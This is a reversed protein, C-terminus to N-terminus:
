KGARRLEFSDEDGLVGIEQELRLAQLLLIRMEGPEDKSRLKQYSNALKNIVQGEDSFGGRNSPYGAKIRCKRSHMRPFDFGLTPAELPTAIM